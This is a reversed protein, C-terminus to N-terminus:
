ANKVRKYITITRNNKKDYSRKIALLGLRNLDQELQAYNDDFHGIFVIEICEPTLPKWQLKNSELAKALDM